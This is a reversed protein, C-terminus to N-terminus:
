IAPARLKMARSQDALKEEDDIKVLVKYYNRIRTVFRVPEDGRAYGHKTQKHWRQYKLLPLNQSVDNWKDPNGGRKKTLMRADELHGYGVNYAALALWLRDPQIVSPPLKDMMAKVYRAGGDISQAPDLRNQVGLHDATAKTLMMIGRVGTPSTALPDWYSEQYGMAALLRWDIQHRHGAKEFLSHFRPLRNQIRLHFVTMNVPDIQSAAGYYRDLLRKLKGSRRYNELFKVSANYLSRDDSLPFGWALKQPAGLNLAVKLEPYHPQSLQFLNSDTVTFELLGQWVMELLEVPEKDDVANWKIHPHKERLSALMRSYRSGAPVELHQNYLEDLTRPPYTGYRYVLQQNVTQYTPGFLLTDKLLGNAVLGGAIMHAEGNRLRVVMDPVDDAVVYVAEVGLTEAFATTMDYEIGGYGNREVYYTTPSNRTLVRLEGSERIQQLLTGPTAPCGALLAPAVVLFLVLLLARRKQRITITQPAM